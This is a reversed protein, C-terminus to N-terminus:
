RDESFAVDVLFDVRWDHYRIWCGFVLNRGACAAAAQHSQRSRDASQAADDLYVRGFGAVAGVDAYDRLSQPLEGPRALLRSKPCEPAKIPADAHALDPGLHLCSHSLRLHAHPCRAAAPADM